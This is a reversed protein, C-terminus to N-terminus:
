YGIPTGVSAPRTGVHSDILNRLDTRAREAETDLGRRLTDDGAFSPTAALKQAALRGALLGFRDPIYLRRNERYDALTIRDGQVNLTFRLLAATAPRPLLHLYWSPSPEILAPTGDRVSQRDAFYGPVVGPARTAFFGPKSPSIDLQGWLPYTHPWPELRSHEGNIELFVDQSIMTATETFRIADHWVLADAVVGDGSTSGNHPRELTNESILRNPWPDDPCQIACGEWDPYSFGVWRRGVVPAVSVTEPAKIAETVHVVRMESPMRLWIELLAENACDILDAMTEAPVTELERSVTLRVLRRLLERTTM